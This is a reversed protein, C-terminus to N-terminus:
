EFYKRFNKNNFYLTNTFFKIAFTEASKLKNIIRDTDKKSFHVEINHKTVTDFAEWDGNDFQISVTNIYRKNALISLHLIREIKNKKNLDKTYEELVLSPYLPNGFLMGMANDSSIQMTHRFWNLYNGFWDGDKAKYWNENKWRSHQSLKLHKIRSGEKHVSKTHSVLDQKDVLPRKEAYLVSAFLTSIAILTMLLIKM